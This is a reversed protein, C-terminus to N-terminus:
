EPYNQMTNWGEGFIDSHIDSLWSCDNLTWNHKLNQLDRKKLYKFYDSLQFM